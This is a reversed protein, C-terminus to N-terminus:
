RLLSDFKRIKMRDSSSHCLVAWGSPQCYDQVCVDCIRRLQDLPILMQSVLPNLRRKTPEAVGDGTVMAADVLETTVGQQCLKPAGGICHSSGERKLGILDFQDFSEVVVNSGYCAYTNRHSLDNYRVAGYRARAHHQRLSHFLQRFRAANANGCGDM